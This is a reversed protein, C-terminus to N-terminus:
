SPRARSLREIRVWKLRGSKGSKISVQARTVKFREAVLRILEKNAKGEVPPSQIRALWTGDSLLELGGERANPKVKIQIITATASSM